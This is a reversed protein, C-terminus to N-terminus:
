FQLRGGGSVDKEKTKDEALKDQRKELDEIKADEGPKRQSEKKDRQKDPM